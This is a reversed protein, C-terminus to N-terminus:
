SLTVVLPISSNRKRRQKKIVLRPIVMRQQQKTTLCPRFELQVVMIIGMM